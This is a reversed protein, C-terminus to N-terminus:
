EEGDLSNGWGSELWPFLLLFRHEVPFGSRWEREEVERLKFSIKTSAYPILDGLATPTDGSVERGGGEETKL